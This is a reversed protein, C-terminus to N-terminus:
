GLAAYDGSTGCGTYQNGGKGGAGYNGGGGAGSNGSSAGGGGNALKGRGYWQNPVYHAAGEGKLGESPTAQYYTNNNCIFGNSFTHAGRFGNHSVNIEANLILTDEVEFVLVGGVGGPGWPTCTLGATVIANGSYVPVKILQVSDEPNFEHCLPN